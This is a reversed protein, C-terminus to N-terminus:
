LDILNLISSTNWESLTLRFPFTGSSSVRFRFNIDILKDGLHLSWLKLFHELIVVKNQFTCFLGTQLSEDVQCDLMTKSRKLQQFLTSEDGWFKLYINNLFFLVSIILYWWIVQSCFDSRIWFSRTVQALFKSWTTCNNIQSTKLATNSWFSFYSIIKQLTSNWCLPLGCIWPNNQIFSAGCFSFSELSFPTANPSLNIMQQLRFLELLISFRTLKCICLCALVRLLDPFLM